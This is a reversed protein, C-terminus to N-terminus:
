AGAQRIAAMGPLRADPQTEEGPGSVAASIAKILKDQLADDFGFVADLGQQPLAPCSSEAPQILSVTCCMM